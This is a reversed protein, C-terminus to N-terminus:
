SQYPLRGHRVRDIQTVRLDMERAQSHLRDRAHQIEELTAESTLRYGAQGSIIHGRSHNAVARSHRDNWGLEREIAAATQWGRGELWSLLKILDADLDRRPSQPFLEAQEANM